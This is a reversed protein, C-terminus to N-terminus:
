NDSVDNQLENLLDDPNQVSFSDFLEFIKMLFIFMRILNISTLQAWDNWHIVLRITDLRKTGHQLQTANLKVTTRTHINFSPLTFKKWVFCATIWKTSLKCIIRIFLLFPLWVTLHFRLYFLKKNSILHIYTFIRWVLQMQINAFPHFLCIHLLMRNLSHCNKSHIKKKLYDSLNWYIGRRISSLVAYNCLEGLYKFTVFNSICVM